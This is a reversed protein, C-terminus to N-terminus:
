GDASPRFTDAIDAVRHIRDLAVEEAEQRDAPTFGQTRMANLRIEVLEQHIALLIELTRYHDLRDM